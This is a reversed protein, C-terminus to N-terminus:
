AVARRAYAAKRIAAARPAWVAMLELGILRQAAEVIGIPPLNGRADANVSRLPREVAYLLGAVLRAGAATADEWSTPAPDVEANKYVSPLCAAIAPDAAVIELVECERDEAATVFARHLPEFDAATRSDESILESLMIARTDARLTLGAAHAYNM